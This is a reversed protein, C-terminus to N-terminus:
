KTLKKIKTQVIYERRTLNNEINDLLKSQVRTFVKCENPNDKLLIWMIQKKIAIGRKKEQIKKLQNEYVVIKNM